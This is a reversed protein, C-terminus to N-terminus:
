AWVIDAGEIPVSPNIVVIEPPVDFRLDQEILSSSGIGRTIFAPTEGQSCFGQLDIIKLEKIVDLGPASFQGGHLHGSLILDADWEARAGPEHIMYITFADTEPLDPPSSKGAWADDVGVLMLDTGGLNLLEYENKMVHVGAGELAATIDEALGWDILPDDQLMSVDYGEVSLNAEEMALMKAPGNLGKVGANYDHNGLVAYVPADIEAWVQQYSLNDDEGTVFDGGILVVSANMANIEEAVSHMFELNGSKLHPDAIFVIDSPAGDMEIVTIEASQAEYVMYGGMGTLLVLGFVTAYIHPTYTKLRDKM